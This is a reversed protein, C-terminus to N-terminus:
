ATLDDVDVDCLFFFISPFFVLRYNFNMEHDCCIESIIYHTFLLRIICEKLTFAFSFLGLISILVRFQLSCM